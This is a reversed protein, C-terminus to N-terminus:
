PFEIPLTTAPVYLPHKPQGSANRALCRLKDGVYKRLVPLITESRDAGHEGWACVVIKADRSARLIAYTNYVGGEADPIDHLTKPNTSRFAMLNVVQMATFGWRQAFRICRTITPDDVDHTATSPNLMIFTVVNGSGRVHAPFMRTLVYRHRGDTSFLASSKSGDLRTTEFKAIGDNSVHTLVGYDFEEEIIKAIAEVDDIM